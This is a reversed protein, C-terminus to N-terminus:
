WPLDTKTPTITPNIDSSILGALCNQITFVGDDGLKSKIWEVVKNNTLDDYPIFSDGQIVKFYESDSLTETYTKEDIEITATVDYIATVVYNKESAKDITLLEKVTWIYEM